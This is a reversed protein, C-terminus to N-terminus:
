KAATKLKEVLAKGYEPCQELFHKEAAPVPISEWKAKEGPNLDVLKIGKNALENIAGKENDEMYKVFVPGWDKCTNVLIKQLDGPLSNFREVNFWMITFYFYLPTKTMHKWVEYERWDMVAAPPRSAGDVIGREAAQYIEAPALKVPTGGLAEMVKTEVGGLSRIKLGKMDAVSAIVKTKTFIYMGGLSIPGWLVGIKAKKRYIEGLDGGVADLLKLANGFEWAVVPLGLMQGEPVGAAYYNPNGVVIDIAGKGCATLQDEVPIIEGGGARIVELQGNSRKNVDSFLELYKKVAWHAPKYADVFKLTVKVPPAKPPLATPSPPTPAPARCAPMLSALLVLLGLVAWSAKRTSM